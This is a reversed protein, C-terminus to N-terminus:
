ICCEDGLHWHVEVMAWQIMGIRERKVKTIKISNKNLHSIELDNKNWQETGKYEVYLHSYMISNKDKQNVESVLADGALGVAKGLSSFEFM